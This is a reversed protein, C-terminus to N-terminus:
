MCFITDINVESGFEWTTKVVITGTRFLECMKWEWCFGLLKGEEGTLLALSLFLHSSSLRVMGAQGTKNLFDETGRDREKAAKKVKGGIRGGGM